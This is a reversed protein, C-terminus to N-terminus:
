PFGGVVSSLCLCGHMTASTGNQLSTCNCRLKPFHLLTYYMSYYIGVGVQQLYRAVAVLAVDWSAM